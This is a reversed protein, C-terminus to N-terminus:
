RGRGKGMRSVPIIGSGRVCQATALLVLIPVLGACSLPPHSIRYMTYSVFQKFVIIIISKSSCRDMIGGLEWRRDSADSVRAGTADVKRRACM